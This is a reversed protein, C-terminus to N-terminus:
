TTSRAGSGTNAFVGGGNNYAQNNAITSNLVVARNGYAWLGGGDLAINGLLSSNTVTVFVSNPSAAM